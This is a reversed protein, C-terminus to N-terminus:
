KVYRLYTNFRFLMKNQLKLDVVFKDPEFSANGIGTLLFKNLAIHPNDDIDYKPYVGYPLMALGTDCVVIYQGKTVLNSYAELEKFVHETTHNSDLILMTTKDKCTAHVQNILTKDLTSGQLLPCPHSQKAHLRKILEDPMYKDVAVVNHVYDASDLALMTGGWAVGLEVIVEPRCQEVIEMMMLLDEATQLSPEGKFNTQYVWNHKIAGCFTAIMQQKLAKDDAMEKAWVKRMAEFSERTYM